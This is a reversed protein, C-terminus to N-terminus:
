AIEAGHRRVELAHPNEEAKPLGDPALDSDVVQVLREITELNKLFDLQKVVEVDQLPLQEELRLDAMKDSGFFHDQLYYGAAVVIVMLGAAAMAPAVRLRWGVGVPRESTRRLGSLVRGAIRGAESGSLEPPVAAARMTALLRVLRQREARCPACEELHSDWMRRLRRDSLEGMADLMLTEHHNRCAQQM